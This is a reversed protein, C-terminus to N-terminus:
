SPLEYPHRRPRELLLNAEDDGAFVERKPDWRLKRGLRRAIGGLHCITSSRHGIEVDSICRRRSKICEIWNRMHHDSVELRVDKARPPEAAIGKPVTHFIGRNM